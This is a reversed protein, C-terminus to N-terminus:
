LMFSTVVRCFMNEGLPLESPSPILNDKEAILDVHLTM